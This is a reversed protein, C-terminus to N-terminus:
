PFQRGAAQQPQERLVEIARKLLSDEELQRPAEPVREREQEVEGEELELFPESEVFPVSPVVATDQIAKGTPSFYKAVSLIIASGDDLTIARRVAADGFSREGVVQARKNELLAAAAIEAGNATGRNTTVVLPLRTVMKKPDALFDQRPVTQGEMYAMLGKDLFLNALEIGEQTEGVACQRLDLVLGKAGQQQLSRISAAVERARGAVLSQPRIYGVDEEIMRATLSPLPVVARTLTTKQPEPNRMRLISVEVTTGPDGRLLLEGYALPMDRTAIGNISEILDGTSLGAKAAPSGPLVSVVSIYGFRKSLLMGVDGRHADKNRVYQKYHEANLYSAFPDISELMGTLAGLTVGKLDPDEVYDSKIKSLVETFVAMHRYADERPGMQAGLLLVAVLCTSLVVTFVKFRSRM